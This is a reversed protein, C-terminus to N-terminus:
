VCDQKDGRNVECEVLRARVDPNEHDGKNSTVWRSRVFMHDPIKLMDSRDTAKWVKGHFYELEEVIAETILKSPLVYGTYEDVYKARFNASDGKVPIAGGRYRKVASPKLGQTPDSNDPQTTTTSALSMVIDNHEIGNKRMIKEM